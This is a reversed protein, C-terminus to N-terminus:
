DDPLRRRPAPRSGPLTRRASTRWRSVDAWSVDAWSVDSWSVDAWSADAWSVDAWSGLGLLRQGPRTPGASRTSADPRPGLLSSQEPGREPEAPNRSMSARRREDRRRRRLRAVERRAPAAGDADARGQGPRADLESAPRPGPRGRGGRGSGLVVHGLAAHLRALRREGAERRRADLRRSRRRGHLPRGRRSPSRFGDYTRGYASWTPRRATRRVSGALDIAGVTIVFPDNGPAYKVGSPGDPQRLQGGGRRRRRRQVLAERGRPRTPRRSTSPRASHLSFNAVRINYSTRTPLIWAAGAIVDSTRATGTDDM